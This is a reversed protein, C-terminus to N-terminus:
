KGTIRRKSRRPRANTKRKITSKRQSKINTKRTTKRTSKRTSKRTTKRTTKRTSNRTSKGQSKNKKNNKDKVKPYLADFHHSGKSKTKGLNHYLFIDEMIDKNKVEYGLGVNSFKGKNHIYVRINRNLLNSMGYIEIQGAYSDYRSMYTLYKGVNKVKKDLGGSDIESQIEQAITREIGKIKYDLNARLWKICEARLRTALKGRNKETILKGDIEIPNGDKILIAAISHFFCAGDGSVGIHTFDNYKM